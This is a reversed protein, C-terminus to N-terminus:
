NFSHDAFFQNRVKHEKSIPDGMFLKEEIIIDLFLFRMKRSVTETETHTRIEQVQWVLDACNTKM